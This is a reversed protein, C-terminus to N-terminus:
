KRHIMKLKNKRKGAMWAIIVFIEGLLIDGM